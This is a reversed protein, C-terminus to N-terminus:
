CAVEYFPSLLFTGELKRSGSTAPLNKDNDKKTLQIM